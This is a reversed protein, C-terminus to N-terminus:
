VIESADEPTKLQGTKLINELANQCRWPLHDLFMHPSVIIDKFAERKAVYARFRSREWTRWRRWLPKHLGGNQPVIHIVLGPLYLEPISLSSKNESSPVAELFENLPDDFPSSDSTSCDCLSSFHNSSEPSGIKDDSSVIDHLVSSGPERKSLGNELQSHNIQNTCSSMATFSNVSSEGESMSKQCVSLSTFHHALKLITTIDITGDESLAKLAAAQLRMISAVSLRASFEDNNVISTIFESCADAVVLGVCPLAGYTYVHLDPYQKRLKMGLLAAIAGGLSHGVIRVGYGECECGVGLLSSLFGGDGGNGDVQMYLDRAAEVVGSHAYHPSSSVVRQRICPDFYDGSLLSDLEEETLCCERGLGDTILDEPTETGRVAILVSKVNHLVVIFYAAKCKGQNVRGKRLMHASLHVHKLFAAAHGRWWNDGELLPRRNWLWPALIGQRYLWSCSFLVPNRGIDLLLGTYAAEAFPHYFAAERIREMPVVVSEEYSKSFSCPNQLLALGALLELHGTGSARYTVLDGLLQAVSCVEDEELVTLYKVRGLCCLAERIGHDFVERYHARWANDETAYFSRWRLVDAGAFCQVPGVYSIIVMFLILMTRQWKSGNSLIGRLCNSSTTDSHFLNTVSVLLFVAGLLQLMTIVSAIRTWLLLKRYKKRRQQRIAAQSDPLDTYTTLISSATHQQAIGTAIMASIRIVSVMMAVIVPAVGKDKCSDGGAVVVVVVIVIGMIIILANSVGLLLASRRLRNFQPAHLPVMKRFSKPFKFNLEFGKCRNRLYNSNPLLPLLPSM